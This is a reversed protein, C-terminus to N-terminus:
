FGTKGLLRPPNIPCIKARLYEGFHFTQVLPPRTPITENSRELELIIVPPATPMALVEGVKEV